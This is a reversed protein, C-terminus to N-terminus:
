YEVKVGFPAGDAFTLNTFSESFRLFYIEEYDIITISDSTINQISCISEGYKVWGFPNHKQMEEWCEERNEFPRCKSEPKVRYAYEPNFSPNDDTVWTAGSDCCIEITKGKAYAQMIPLMKSLENRTM